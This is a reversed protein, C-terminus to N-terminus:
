RYSAESKVVEIEIDLLKRAINKVDHESLLCKSGICVRKIASAHFPM